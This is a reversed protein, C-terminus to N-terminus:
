GRKWADYYLSIEPPHRFRDAHTDMRGLKSDIDRYGSRRWEFGALRLLEELSEADHVFRHGHLFFISNILAMRKIGFPAEASRLLRRAERDAFEESDLAANRNYSKRTTAQRAFYSFDPTSIRLTGLDKLIRNCERLLQVGEPYDLHEIVEELMVADVTGDALPLVRRCDVFVDARPDVDATLWEQRLNGGGGLNLVKADPHRRWRRLYGSTVAKGILPWVRPWCRGIYRLAASTAGYRRSYYSWKEIITLM